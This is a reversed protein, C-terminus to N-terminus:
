FSSLMEFADERKKKDEEIKALRNSERDKQQQQYDALAKNDCFAIAKDSALYLDSITQNIDEFISIDDISNNVYANLQKAIPQAEEYMKASCLGILRQSIRNAKRILVRALQPDLAQNIEKRQGLRMGTFNQLSSGM